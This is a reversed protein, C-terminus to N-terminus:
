YVQNVSKITNYIIVSKEGQRKNNERESKIIRFIYSVKRQTDLLWVDVHSWQM